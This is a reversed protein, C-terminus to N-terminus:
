GRRPRVLAVFGPVVRELSMLLDDVAWPPDRLDGAQERLVTVVVDPHEALAGQLFADPHQAVVGVAECAAQPFDGLNATVVVGADGVVAAALVHRDKADNTMSPELRAVADAEVEAEEFASRMLRELRQAKARPMLGDAVLNRSMEQLIRSSWVPVYLEHEALRLLADRLSFPYLVCADLVARRAM